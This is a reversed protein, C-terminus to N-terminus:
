GPARLPRLDYCRYAANRTGYYRGSRWPLAVTKGAVVECAGEAPEIYGLERVSSVLDGSEGLFLPGGLERPMNGRLAKQVIEVAIAGEVRIWYQLGFFTDFKLPRVVEGTQHPPTSAWVSARRLLQGRGEPTARYGYSFSLDNFDGFNLGCLSELFGRITSPPAIPFTAVLGGAGAATPGPITYHGSIVDVALLVTDVIM